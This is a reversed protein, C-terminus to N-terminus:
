LYPFRDPKIRIGKVIINYSGLEIVIHPKLYHTGKLIFDKSQVINGLHPHTIRNTTLIDDLSLICLNNM